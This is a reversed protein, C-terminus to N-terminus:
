LKAKALGTIICRYDPNKIKLITINSPNVSILLDHCGNCVYLQFQFGKSLFYWYHCIYCEKSESTKNVDIGELVYIIEYCLMKKNNM